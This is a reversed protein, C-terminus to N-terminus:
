RLNEKRSPKRYRIDSLIGCLGVARYTYLHYYYFLRYTYSLLAIITYYVKNLYKIYRTIRSSSNFSERPSLLLIRLVLEPTVAAM